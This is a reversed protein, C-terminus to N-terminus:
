VFHIIFLIYYISCELQFPSLIYCVVLKSNKFTDLSRLVSKTYRFNCFGCSQM